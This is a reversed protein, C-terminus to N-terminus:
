QADGFNKVCSISKANYLYCTNDGDIFKDVNKAIGSRPVIQGPSELGDCATLLLLALFTLKM